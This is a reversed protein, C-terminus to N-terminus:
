WWGPIERSLSNRGAPCPQHCAPNGTEAIMGGEVPFDAHARWARDHAAPRRHASIGRRGSTRSVMEELCEALVQPRQICYLGVVALPQGAARSKWLGPSTATRWWRWGFRRPDDVTKVGISSERAALVPGLDVDFITDGLIILTPETNLTSRLPLDRTRSGDAGGARHLRLPVGSLDQLSLRLDTAWTGSL